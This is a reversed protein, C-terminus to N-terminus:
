KRGQSSGFANLFTPEYPLNKSQLAYFSCGLHDSSAPEVTDRMCPWSVVQKEENGSTDDDYYTINIEERCGSRNICNSCACIISALKPGSGNQATSSQCLHCLITRLHRYGLLWFIPVTYEPTVTGACCPRMQNVICEQWM